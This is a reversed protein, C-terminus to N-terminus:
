QARAGGRRPVQLDTGTGSREGGRDSKRYALKPLQGFVEPVTLGLQDLFERQDFCVSHRQVRWDEVRFMAMMDMEIARGTPPVGKFPGEHTGSFTVEDMVLDDSAVLDNVAFRFDPFGRGVRRMFSELGSRGRTEGSSGPGVDEAIAPDELVFSEAVLDPVVEYDRENWLRVYSEVVDAPPTSSPSM